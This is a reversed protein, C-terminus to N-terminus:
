FAFTVFTHSILAGVQKMSAIEGIEPPLTCLENYGIRLESLGILASVEPPVQFMHVLEM